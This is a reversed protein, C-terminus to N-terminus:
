RNGAFVRERRADQFRSRLTKLLFSFLPVDIALPVLVWTVQPAGLAYLALAGGGHFLATPVSALVGAHSRYGSLHERITTDLTGIMVAGVGTLLLAKGSEKRAAGIAVAILGAFILLEDLPVPHWPARPREGVSGPARYGDSAKGEAARREAARARARPKQKSAAVTSAPSDANSGTRVQAGAEADPEAQAGAKTLAGSQARSGASRRKRSRGRGGKNRNAM